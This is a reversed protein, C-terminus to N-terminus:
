FMKNNWITLFSDFDILDECFSEPTLKFHSMSAWSPIIQTEFIITIMICQFGDFIRFDM